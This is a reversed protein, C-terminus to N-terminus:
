LPSTPILTLDFSSQNSGQHGSAGFLAWLFWRLPGSRFHHNPANKSGLLLNVAAAIGPDPMWWSSFTTKWAGLDGTTCRPLRHSASFASIGYMIPLPHDLILAVLNGVKHRRRSRGLVCLAGTSNQGRQLRQLLPLRQRDIM